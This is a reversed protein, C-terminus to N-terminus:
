WPVEELIAVFDGWCSVGQKDLLTRSNFMTVKCFLEITFSMTGKYWKLNDIPFLKHIEWAIEILYMIDGVDKIKKALCVLGNLCKKLGLHSDVGGDLINCMTPIGFPPVPHIPRQGSIGFAKERLHTCRAAILDVLSNDNTWSEVGPGDVKFEFDFHDRCTDCHIMRSLAPNKFCRLCKLMLATSLDEGPHPEPQSTSAM